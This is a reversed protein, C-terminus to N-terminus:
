WIDALPQLSTAVIDGLHKTSACIFSTSYRLSFPLTYCRSRRRSSTIINLRPACSCTFTANLVDFLLYLYIPLSHSFNATDLYSLLGHCSRPAVLRPFRDIYM